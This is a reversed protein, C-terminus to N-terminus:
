KKNFWAAIKETIKRLGQLPVFKFDYHQENLFFIINWMRSTQECFNSNVRAERDDSGALTDGSTTM